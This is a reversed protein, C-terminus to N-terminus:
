RGVSLGGDIILNQGTMYSCRESCLWSVADAIEEADAFRQMPIQKLYQNVLKEPVQNLMDTKVYGPSIANVSINFNSLEVALSRTFGLIASKSASYATQGSLGLMGAVSAINIIKGSKKSIMHPIVAKCCQMTGILNTSIVKNIENLPQIMLFSDNSIGANNVLCDVKGYEKKIYSFMSNVQEEDEISCSYIYVECGQKTLEECLNHAENQSNNYNIIVVYGDAALRRSIAAGIGKAGGTILAIKKM